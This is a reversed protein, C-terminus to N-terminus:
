PNNNFLEIDFGRPTLLGQRIAQNQDTYNILKGAFKEYARLLNGTFVQREERNKGQRLDFVQYIEVGDWDHQQPMVHVANNRGTNIRSFPLTLERAPDALLFQVRWSAPATPNGGEEVRSWARATVGYFVNNNATVIRVSEGVPFTNLTDQVQTLQRDLRQNFYDVASQTAKKPLEKQRYQETSDRLEGTVHESVQSAHSALAQFDHDNLDELAPLDLNQRVTNAAQLSTVPKRQTKADVVELYVPGTFPSDLDQDAPVVEMRAVTKADLDLSKAELISEGIAEQRQLFETYETEILNYIREQEALPLLPIRGTVKSVANHTDLEDESGGLPKDLKYHLRPNNGMLEAVVQDGYENMFDPISDLSVGSSRAATTNANLSAMKKALVAGPRKEAPVDAMLLTFNPTVVQGTRHIRGLMQMFQNIDREPQAVIMHRRRQDAFNASAHLSIGTSGSRNLILVDLEGRNFANVNRVAAAKNTESEARRQYTANGQSDYEVVDVRGTVENIRYGEQTLRAKIYDIPSIPLSSLDTEAVLDLVREYEMVGAPGLEDDSLRHRSKEGYPNGVLIDRSRNLYRKLLDGFSLNMEDGPKLANMEAYQGIFSGMTNSLAIVPKESEPQRLLELAKQVTAEAKIALLSQDILNHMISTFNTSTAGAGGTSNDGLIAKAEAKYQKDLVKVAAQKIRDFELIAAMSLSIQEAVEHDVPSVVSEFSVGTFSRERRIYQGAETLMTALAQQMPVGGNEIMGVLSAMNSVALRMDTKAYLDMVDPRKAYTASSYFVGDALEILERAFEARNPANKSQRETKSGGAEHSEDLILIANAAFRRLFERRPTEKGKVTQIQNYTTFIADYNGLTGAHLLAQLEQKHTQSTTRLQRGDPLPLDLSSNTVFPKFGAMGIDSLDRIMDAYLPTDKTLFIPTRGTQKAYRIMAAVVRGKGIGTQDGIIFGSKKELNNIALACADVQEASFYQHLNNATGYGLRDAVFADIPGVQLELRALANVISSQMNVPILTDVSKGQSRPIYPVQKVQEPLPQPQQNDIDVTSPNNRQVLEIEPGIHEELIMGMGGTTRQDDAGALGGPFDARYDGISRPRGNSTLSLRLGGPLEAEGAPSSERRDVGSGVGEPQGQTSGLGLNPPGYQGVAPLLSHDGLSSGPRRAASDDLRHTPGLAQSLGSPNLNPEPQPPSPSSGLLPGDARQNTADLNKSQEPVPVNLLEKLDTFSKYIRPVAAAPLPRQSKGRGDILILDIPFGAGQKRYLEGWISFHDIINYQSYLTFYFARSQQTNYRDSRTSEDDGLKGGLILLARGDPKMAKLANLTIAHDIQTTSYRGVNFRKAGGERDLVSGFPPNLIVVDHLKEPLYSVADQETVKYGQQRLDAAREPNLENATVNAPDTALLLAGNGATPEYTSKGPTIGVLATALYAIPVPTSYAQQAVSTSSRTGLNPQRQYLDVLQDYAQQPTTAAQVIARAARVIGREVAEDVSKAQATGPEVKQGLIAEAAQRAEIITAFSGGESFTKAFAEILRQHYNV